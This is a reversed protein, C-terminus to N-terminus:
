KHHKGWTQMTQRMIGLEGTHYSNHDGVLIMERYITQGDGWPIVYFLDTSPDKVIDKLSELDKTFLEVTKDWEKKTAKADKKPWYQLPWELENYNSDVIFDLIDRQTIRMHEILAWAGYEGHPFIDNIHEMPFEDVVENFPMHAMGGNLLDLLIEREYEYKM